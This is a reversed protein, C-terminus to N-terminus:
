ERGCEKGNLARPKRSPRSTVSSTVGAEAGTRETSGRTLLHAGIPIVGGGAIVELGVLQRRDNRLGDPRTTSRRGVFDDPKKAIAPGFGVDQPYTTGDTDSGIHLFGKEVRMVMLAEIGFPAIGFKRGARM